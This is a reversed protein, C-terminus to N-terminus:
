IIDTIFYEGRDLHALGVTGAWGVVWKGSNYGHMMYSVQVEKDSDVGLYDINHDLTALVIKAKIKWSLSFSCSM